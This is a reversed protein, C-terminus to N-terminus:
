NASLLHAFPVFHVKTGYPYDKTTGMCTVTHKRQIM